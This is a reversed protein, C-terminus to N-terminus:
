NVTVALPPLPSCQIGTAYPVPPGQTTPPGASNPYKATSKAVLHVSFTASGCPVNVVTSLAPMLVVKSGSVTGTWTVVAQLIDSPPLPSATGCGTAPPPPIVGDNYCEALTWSVNATTGAARTIAPYLLFLLAAVILLAALAHLLASKTPQSLRLMM